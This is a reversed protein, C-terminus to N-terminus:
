PAAKAAPKTAAKATPMGTNWFAQDGAVVQPPPFSLKPNVKYLTTQTSSVGSGLTESLMKLDKPSTSKGFAASAAQEGDAEALTKLATMFLYVTGGIPGYISSYCTWHQDPAAKLMDRMYVKAAEEFEYEHGAKVEYRGIDIYRTGDPSSKVNTSLEDRRVFVGIMQDALVAGDAENIRDLAANQAPTM